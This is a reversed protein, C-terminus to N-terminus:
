KKRAVVRINSTPHFPATAFDLATVMGLALPNRATFLASLGRLGRRESFYHHFSQIWFAPSALHEVKVIEFGADAVLRELGNRNFLVLHRPFHFGGWYRRSFLRSDLGDIDPTEILAVGGPVLLRAVARMVDDPRAFHELVQNLVVVDAVGEPANKLEFPRDIVEFGLARVRDLHEGPFDWGILHWDSRGRSRLLRLLGGAGCGLDLIRAGTAAYRALVRVKRSQVFDRARRVVAPLADFQYPGYDAPYLAAIEDDAPRPDLIWTGCGQCSKFEFEQPTTAYEFDVGRGVPRMEAGDACLPCRGPVTRVDRVAPRAMM